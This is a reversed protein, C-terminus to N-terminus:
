NLFDEFFSRGPFDEIFSLLSGDVGHLAEAFTESSKATLHKSM